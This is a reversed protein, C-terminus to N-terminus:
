AVDLRARYVGRVLQVPLSRMAELRLERIGFAQCTVAFVRTDCTVLVLFRTIVVVGPASDRVSGLGSPVAAAAHDTMLFIEAVAAVLVRFGAGVSGSPRGAWRSVAELTMGRASERSAADAMLWGVMRHRGHRGRFRKVSGAGITSFTVDLKRYPRRGSVRVGQDRIADDAM